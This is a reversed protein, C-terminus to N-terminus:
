TAQEPRLFPSGASCTIETVERSTRAACGEEALTQMGALTHSQLSRALHPILTADVSFTRFGLGALIPLVGPLQPLLGCLQVRQIEGGAAEAMQRFFRFLPPACPDLYDRVAARDRDAAFLCQMLDNCGVAVFDTAALWNALDLAAVPTEVMAGTPLPRSLHRGIYDMWYQLEELRVLYPILVRLSFHDGLDALAELQALLVNRIVEIGYLRVGQLGLAGNAAGGDPVWAPLKDSALDLLRVTVMLPDSAVCVACFVGRYFAADPAISAASSLYESRVLGIAGAGAQYAQRTAAVSGVSAYLQVATGDATLVPQGALPPRAPLPLPAQEGADGSSLTGRSGDLLVERGTELSAAQLASIVVTPIGRGLLAIMTHSFPAADVVILGAPRAPLAAIGSQGLMVISDPGIPQSAHQLRGRATGPVYPMAAIHVPSVSM